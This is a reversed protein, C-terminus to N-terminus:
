KKSNITNIEAGSKLFLRAASIHGGIVALHLPTNGDKDKLETLAGHALLLPLHQGLKDFALTVRHLVTTTRTNGQFNIDAGARLLMRASLAHDHIIAVDLPNPSEFSAKWRWLHVGSHGLDLKAKKGLIVNMLLLNGTQAAMSLLGWNESHINVDGGSELLIEVVKDLHAVEEHRRVIWLLTQSAITGTGHISPSAGAVAKLLSKRAELQSDNSVDRSVLDKSLAGNILRDCHQHGLYPLPSKTGARWASSIGQALQHASVVPIVGECYPLYDSSLPTGCPPHRANYERGAVCRTCKCLQFTNRIRSGSLTDATFKSIHNSCLCALYKAGAGLGSGHVAAVVLCVECFCESLGKSEFMQLLEAQSPYKRIEIGNPRPSAHKLLLERVAANEHMSSMEATSYGWRNKRNIQAGARILSEIMNISDQQNIAIDIPQEDYDDGCCVEAAPLHPLLAKAALPKRQRLAVHLATQGRSNKAGAPAGHNILHEIMTARGNAALYHLPTNGCITCSNVLEPEERLAIDIVDKALSVNRFKSAVLLVNFGKEDQFSSWMSKVVTLRWNADKRRLHLLYEELYEHSRALAPDMKVNDTAQVSSRATPSPEMGMKTLPTRPETGHVNVFVDDSQASTAEISAREHGGTSQPKRLKAPDDNATSKLASSQREDLSNSDRQDPLNPFQKTTSTSQSPLDTQEILIRSQTLRAAEARSSLTAGMSLNTHDGTTNATEFLDGDSVSGEWSTTDPDLDPFCCLRDYHIDGPSMTTIQAVLDEATPRASSNWATMTEVWDFLLAEEVGSQDKLGDIWHGIAEHNRWYAASPNGLSEFFETKAELLKGSL